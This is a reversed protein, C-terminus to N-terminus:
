GHGCCNAAESWDGVCLTKISLGLERAAEEQTRGGLHCTVLPSRYRESLKGLEEDLATLCEARDPYAASSEPGVAAAEHRRRRRNKDRLRLAVHRAVGFLWSRVSQGRISGAKRALILFTAQFADEADQEHRLVRRCVGLVVQGHRRILEGFASEGTGGPIRRLLEDDSAPDALRLIESVNGM